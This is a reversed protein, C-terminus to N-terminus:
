QKFSDALCMSRVASWFAADSYDVMDRGFAQATILLPHYKQLSVVADPPFLRTSHGSSYKVAAPAMFSFGNWCPRRHPTIASDSYMVPSLSCTPSLAHYASPLRGSQPWRASIMLRWSSSARFVMTRPKVASGIERSNSPDMSRHSQTLHRPPVLLSRMSAALSTPIPTSTFCRARRGCRSSSQADGVHFLIGGPSNQM